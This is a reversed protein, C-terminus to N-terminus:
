AAKKPFMEAGRAFFQAATPPSQLSGLDQLVRILTTANTAFWKGVASLETLWSPAAAAGRKVPPKLDAALQDIEDITAESLHM